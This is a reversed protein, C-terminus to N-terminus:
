FLLCVSSNKIHTGEIIYTRDEASFFSSSKQLLELLPLSKERNILVYSEYDLVGPLFGFKGAFHSAYKLPVGKRLMTHFYGRTVGLEIAAQTFTGYGKTITIYLARSEATDYLLRHHQEKLTM